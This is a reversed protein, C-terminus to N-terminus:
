LHRLTHAYRNRRGQEHTEHRPRHRRLGPLAGGQSGSGGGWPTVPIGYQNAIKMVRAVEGASGPHVVFDPRQPERGRDHWMEPIWYYDISHGLADAAGSNVFEAGVADMLECRVMQYMYNDRALQM